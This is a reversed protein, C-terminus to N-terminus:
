IALRAGADRGGLGDASDALGDEHLAGTLLLGAGLALLAAFVPPLLWVALLFVLGQLAGVGAGVVPFAWVARPFRGASSATAPDPARAAPLPLRTLLGAALILDGLLQAHPPMQSFFRPEAMAE